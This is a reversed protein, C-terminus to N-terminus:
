PKANRDFFATIVLIDSGDPRHAVRIVRNGNEPIRKFARTATADDPDPRTWDPSMVAREIWEDALQRSQLRVRTHNSYRIV